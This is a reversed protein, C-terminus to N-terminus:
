NTKTAKMCIVKWVKAGFTQAPMQLLVYLCVRSTNDNNNIIKPLRITLITKVTCKFGKNRRKSCITIKLNRLLLNIRQGTSIIGSFVSHAGHSVHLGSPPVATKLSLGPAHTNHEPRPPLWGSRDSATPALSLECDPHGDHVLIRNPPFVTSGLDSHSGGRQLGSGASRPLSSSAAPFAAGASHLLGAASGAGAERGEERLVAPGSM